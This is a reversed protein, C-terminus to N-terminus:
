AVVEEVEHEEEDLEPTESERQKEAIEFGLDAIHAFEPCAMVLLALGQKVGAAAPEGPKRRLDLHDPRLCDERGCTAVVAWGAPADRYVLSFVARHLGVLKGGVLPEIVAPPRDRAPVDAVLWHEKSSFDPDRRALRDVFKVLQVFSHVV